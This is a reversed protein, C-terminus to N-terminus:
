IGLETKIKEFLKQSFEKAYWERLNWLDAFVQAKSITQYGRLFEDEKLIYINAEKKQNEPFRARIEVEDNIYFYVKDYDSPNIDFFMRCASYATPIVNEPMLSEIEFISGPSYTKYIIDKNLNRRTAWFYLLKESDRIVSLNKGVEVIGMDRLPNLAHSVVSTSLKFKKSLGTISFSTEKNEIALNLLERWIYEIKLM